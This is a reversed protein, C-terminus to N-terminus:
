FIKVYNNKKIKKINKKQQKQQQQIKLPRKIREITLEFAIYNTAHM